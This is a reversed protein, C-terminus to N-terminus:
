PDALHETPAAEFATACGGSCFYYTEGGHSVTSAPDEVDVAMGCVPDRATEQGAPLRDSVPGRGGREPAESRVRVLEAVVSLGIETPTRAEIDVGAPVTVREHLAAPDLDLLGAARDIVSAARDDSAVLGIYPADLAVAAAIGAADIEGMSAVVTFPGAEFAAAIGDPEAADIVRASGPGAEGGPDVLAVAFGVEAAFRRVADAVATTGVLLLEEAPLVPELFVELTGGSHCTMPKAVLGPREIAEPDPALGVLRHRGTELAERAESVVATQACEVGGIYGTIEGDATVIARDGVNASVPPERRVVTARVFPEGRSALDAAKAELEDRAVSPDGSPRDAM